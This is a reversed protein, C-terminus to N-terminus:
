HPTRALRRLEKAMAGANAAIGREVVAASSALGADHLHRLEEASGAPCREAETQERVAIRAHESALRTCQEHQIDYARAAQFRIVRRHSLFIDWLSVAVFLASAVGLPLSIRGSRRM